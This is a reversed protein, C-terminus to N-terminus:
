AGEMEGVNRVRFESAGGGSETEEMAREEEALKWQLHQLVHPVSRGAEPRGFRGRRRRGLREGGNGPETGLGEMDSM